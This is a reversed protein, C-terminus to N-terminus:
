ARLMICGKKREKSWRENKPPVSSARKDENLRDSKKDCSFIWESGFILNFIRDSLKGDFVVFFTVCGCDLIENLFVLFNVKLRYSLSFLKKATFVAGFNKIQNKSKKKPPPPLNSFYIPRRGEHSLPCCNGRKGGLFNRKGMKANFTQLFPEGLNSQITSYVIPVRVTSYWLLQPSNSREM